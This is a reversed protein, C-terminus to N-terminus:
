TGFSNSPVTNKVCTNALKTYNFAKTVTATHESSNEKSTLEQRQVSTSLNKSMTPRCASTLWYLQNLESTHNLDTVRECDTKDCTRSSVLHNNWPATKTRLLTKAIINLHNSNRNLKSLLIIEIKVRNKVVTSANWQKSRWSILRDLIIKVFSRRSETIWWSM